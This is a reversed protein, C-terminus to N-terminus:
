PTRLKGHKELLQDIQEVSLGSFDIVPKPPVLDKGDKGTLETKERLGLDRAIINSNLLDAAAGELKQAYIIDSITNAIVFFEKYEEAGSKYLRFLQRDMNAFLCFSVETMARMKPLTKTKGNAFAKQEYLPNKEYWEFYKLAVKWLSAPTFRKPRGTPKKVFKYFQNGKPAAM